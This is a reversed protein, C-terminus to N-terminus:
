SIKRRCYQLRHCVHEGKGNMGSVILGASILMALLVVILLVSLIRLIIKKM